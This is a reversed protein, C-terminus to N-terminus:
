FTWVPTYIMFKFFYFNHVLYSVCQVIWTEQGAKGRSAKVERFEIKNICEVFLQYSDGEYLKMHHFGYM